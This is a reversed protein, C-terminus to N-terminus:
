VDKLAIKSFFIDKILGREAKALDLADFYIWYSTMTFINGLLGIALYIPPFDAVEKAEVAMAFREAFFELFRRYSDMSKRALPKQDLDASPRYEAIFFELFARNDTFLDLIADMGNHIQQLPSDVGQTSKELEAYAMELTDEILSHYIDEKSEFHKYISAISFESRKSIDAITTNKFGKESFVQCSADLIEQRHRARERERRTPPRETKANKMIKQVTEFETRVKSPVMM